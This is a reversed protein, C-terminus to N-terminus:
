ISNKGHTIITRKRMTKSDRWLIKSKNLRGIRKSLLRRYTSPITGSIELVSARSTSVPAKARDIVPSSQRTSSRKLTRSSIAKSRLLRARLSYMARIKVPRMTTTRLCKLFIKRPSSRSNQIVRGGSSPTPWASFCSTTTWTSRCAGM